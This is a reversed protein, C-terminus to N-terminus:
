EARRIIAEAGDFFVKDAYDLVLHGAPRPRVNFDITLQARMTNLEEKKTLRRGRLLAIHSRQWYVGFKGWRLSVGVSVGDPDVYRAKMCCEKTVRENAPLRKMPPTDPVEKWKTRHGPPYFRTALRTMTARYCVYEGLSDRKSEWAGLIRNLAIFERKSFLIAPPAECEEILRESQVEVGADPCWFVARKGGLPQLLTGAVRGGEYVTKGVIRMRSLSLKPEVSRRSLLVHRGM